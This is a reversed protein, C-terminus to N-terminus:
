RKAMFSGYTARTGNCSTLAADFEHKAEYISVGLAQITVASMMRVWWMVQEPARVFLVHGHDLSLKKLLQDM